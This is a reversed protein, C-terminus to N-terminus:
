LPLSETHFALDTIHARSSVRTARALVSGVGGEEKRVEREVVAMFEALGAGMM